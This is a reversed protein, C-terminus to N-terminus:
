KAAILIDAETVTKVTIALAEAKKNLEQSKKRLAVGKNLIARNSKTDHIAVARHSNEKEKLDSLFVTEDKCAEKGSQRTLYATGDCVTHIIAECFANDYRGKFLIKLPPNLRARVVENKEIERVLLTPTDAFLMASGKKAMWNNRNEHDERWEISWGKHTNPEITIKM